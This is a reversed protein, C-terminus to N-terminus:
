AVLSPKKEDGLISYEAPSILGACPVLERDRGMAESLTKVFTTKGTGPPGSYCIVERMPAIKGQFQIYYNIREKFDKKEEDFGTHSNLKKEAEKFDQFIKMEKLANDLKEKEEVRNMIM